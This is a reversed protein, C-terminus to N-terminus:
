ARHRAVQVGFGKFLAVHGEYGEIKKREFWAALRQQLGQKM